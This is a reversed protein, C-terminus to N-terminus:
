SVGLLNLKFENVHSTGLRKINMAANIDREITLGCAQCNFERDQLTIDRVHGCTSCMKSTNRPDVKILRRDAKEAKYVLKSAFESWGADAINLRSVSYDKKEIMGKINLDEIIIVDNDRILKNSLKHQFDSRQNKIKEHCKAISLAARKRNNSGHKKQELLRQKYKLKELSTKYPKPHHFKTGDDLCVFSNLGLDIGTVKDTKPLPIASVNDCSLVIFYKGSPERKIAVTKITGSYPRHM